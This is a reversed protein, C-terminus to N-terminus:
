REAERPTRCGRALRAAETLLVDEAGPKGAHTGGFALALCGAEPLELYEPNDPGSAGAV